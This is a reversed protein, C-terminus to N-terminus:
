DDRDDDEHFDRGRLVGSQQRGIQAALNISESAPRSQFRFGPQHSSWEVKADDLIFQGNFQQADNQVTLRKILGSWRVDFSVRAREPRRAVTVSNNFDFYDPMAADTMRMSARARALNVRVVRRPVEITWFLGSRRIGPNYDHIQNQYSGM